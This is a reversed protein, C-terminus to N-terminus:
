ITRFVAIGRFKTNILSALFFAFVLGLPVSIASFLVTVRLSQGLLPDSMMKNFNYAGAFKPPSILNWRHLTLNGAVVAPILFWFLFGLIFPMIFVYGMLTRRRKLSLRNYHRTLWFANPAASRKVDATM